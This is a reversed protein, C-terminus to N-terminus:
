ATMSRNYGSLDLASNKPKILSVLVIEHSFGVLNAPPALWALEAHISQIHPIHGM